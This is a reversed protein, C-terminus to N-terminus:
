RTWCSLFGVTRITRAYTRSLYAAAAGTPKFPQATHGPAAASRSAAIAVAALCASRKPEEEPLHRLLYDFTLAQSPSFYHGGYANWTPGITSASECLLRAEAVLEETDRIRQELALASRWLPSANRDCVVRDLWHAALEASNLPFDRGIVAGSLVVAYHQLDVAVVPRPVNQAAFWSVSGAGCFLDVVRESRQAERLILEGLGNKLMARKSGMYKM